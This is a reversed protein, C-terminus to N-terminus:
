QKEEPESTALRDTRELWSHVMRACDLAHKDSNMEAITYRLKGRWNPYQETTGPLNQQDAQKFLDEGSLVMLESPTSALFGIAANHLEGAFEPLDAARRPFWDPLVKLSLMVDLMRQKEEIRARWQEQYDADSRLIGAALRAEIDRGTWFGALTPLDHTTVSVLAQRPYEAPRRFSGDRNKEFYLLRYSLIGFKQLAERIYPEVTGLDEGIVVVRSRVSELALIRLLDSAYDRVYVGDCAEKGDPIWFLRFFRMVHDIRLAGGHRCNRRISEAFLRYGDEHHWASSPPPFGWDQGKPNFDDPPSGVRCGAVYFPRHAWLDSGCRDTALALDHYLGISLGRQKAHEQAEALQCDLKWQIWKYFAVLRKHDSAFQHVEPSNPNQFEEQWDTWIWCQRNRKHLIEDLASYVAYRDLLDGEAASWAEFEATQGKRLFERFALKLFKQKLNWVQEYEVYESRRLQEIQNQIRPSNLIAQALRSERVEELREVDIYIPNRYFICNPLYPSTNYPQRNAISHLPNLAIFSVQVHEAAWDAFQHLDTFDGCGWNRDSRLGYLSVALGAGKHGQTLFEPKFATDPCLVLRSEGEEHQISHYGLTAGPPLPLKYRVFRHGEIVCSDIEEAPAATVTEQTGNEWVFTLTLERVKGAPLHVPIWGDSLTAVVTRAVLRSWEERLRAAIADNLEQLTDVPVGMSRLVSELVDVTAIHHTGFIDWYDEQVGWLQCAIHLAKEKNAAPQFNRLPPTM